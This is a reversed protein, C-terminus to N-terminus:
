ILPVFQPTIGGTIQRKASRKGKKIKINGPLGHRKRRRHSFSEQCNYMKQGASMRTPMCLHNQKENEQKIHGTPRM